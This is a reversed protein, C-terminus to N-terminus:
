SAVTLYWEEIAAEEGSTMKLRKHAAEERSSRGNLRHGLTSQAVSYTEAITRVSPHPYQSDSNSSLKYEEYYQKIALLMRNEYPM